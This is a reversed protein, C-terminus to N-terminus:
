GQERAGEETESMATPEVRPVSVTLRYLTLQCHAARGKRGPETKM